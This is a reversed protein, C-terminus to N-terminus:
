QGLEEEVIESLRDIAKDNCITIFKYNSDLYYLLLDEFGSMNDYVYFTWDDDDYFVAAMGQGLNDLWFERTVHTGDTEIHEFSALLVPKMEISIDAYNMELTELRDLYEDYGGDLINYPIYPPYSSDFDPVFPNSVTDTDYYSATKGSNM